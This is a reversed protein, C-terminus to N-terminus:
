YQTQKRSSKQNGYNSLTNGDLPLQKEGITENDYSCTGGWKFFREM